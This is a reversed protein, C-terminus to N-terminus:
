KEEPSFEEVRVGRKVVVGNSARLADLAERVLKAKGRAPAIPGIARDLSAKTAEMSVAARAVAEGHLDRLTQFTVVGDLEEREVDHAALVKGSALPVPTQSAFARYTSEVLGLVRKANKLYEWGQAVREVTLGDSPMVNPWIGETFAVAMTLHAPCNRVCPCGTCHDGTVVNPTPENAARWISALKIRIATLDFADLDAGLIRGQDLFDLEVRAADKGFVGVAAVAYFGLQLNKEPPPVGFGAGSKYDRVIVREPEVVIKDATGVIETEATAPYQRALRRGLERARGTVVDYAFAVEAGEPSEREQEAHLATGRESAATLCDVQPLSASAPCKEARALASASLRIM